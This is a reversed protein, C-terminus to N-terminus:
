VGEEMMKFVLCAWDDKANERVLKLGKKSFSRSLGAAEATLIGGLLLWGGTELHDVMEKALEQHLAASLNALILNFRRRVSHILEDSVRIVRELGNYAVNQRAVEVATPDNDLALIDKFGLQAAFMALIGTGTGLDLISTEEEVLSGFELLAEMCLQTTQHHGTGFAQGPEVVIEKEGISMDVSRLSPRIWVPGVKLPKFFPLWKAAWNEEEIVRTEFAIPQGGHPFSRSLKRLHAEIRQRREPKWAAEDVYARMLLRHPPVGEQDLWLGSFGQEELFPPLIEDWLNPVLLTIERWQKPGKNDRTM